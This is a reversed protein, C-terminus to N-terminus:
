AFDGISIQSASHASNTDMFFQYTFTLGGFPNSTDNTLVSSVLEGSFSFSAGWSVNTSFLTTAGVPNVESVSPIFDSPIVSTASASMIAGIFALSCTLVRLKGTIQQKIFM